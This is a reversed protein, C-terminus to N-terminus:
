ATSEQRVKTHGAQPGPWEETDRWWAERFLHWRTHGLLAVLGDEFVWREGIPGNPDWMCIHGGPYRHPSETPGDASVKVFKPATKPFLIQVRRSDYHPVPITVRYLRGANPGSKFTFGRLDPFHQIAGGEFL